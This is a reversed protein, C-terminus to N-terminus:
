MDLIKKDLFYNLSGGDITMVNIFIYRQLMQTSANNPTLKTRFTKRNTSSGPSDRWAPHACFRVYCYLLSTKRKKDNHTFQISKTGVFKYKAPASFDLKLRELIRQKKNYFIQVKNGINSNRQQATPHWNRESRKHGLVIGKFLSTQCKRDNRTFHISKTGVIQACLIRKWVNQTKFLQLCLTSRSPKM